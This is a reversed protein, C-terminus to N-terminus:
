LTKMHFINVDKKFWITSVNLWITSVESVGIFRHTLQDFRVM